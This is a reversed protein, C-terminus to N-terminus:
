PMRRPKHEEPKMRHGVVVTPL